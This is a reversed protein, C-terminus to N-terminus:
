TDETGPPILKMGESGYHTAEMEVNRTDIRTIDGDDTSQIWESGITHEDDGEEETFRRLPRSEGDVKLAEPM